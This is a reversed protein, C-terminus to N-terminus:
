EYSEMLDDQSLQQSAVACRRPRGSRRREDQESAIDMAKRPSRRAHSTHGSPTSSPTLSGGNKRGLSSSTTKSAQIPHRPVERVDKLWEEPEDGLVEYRRGKHRYTKITDPENSAQHSDFGANGNIELEKPVTTLKEQTTVSQETSLMIAPPPQKLKAPPSSLITEVVDKTQSAGPTSNEDQMSDRRKSSEFNPYQPLDHDYGLMRKALAADQVAIGDFANFYPRKLTVTRGGHASGVLASMTRLPPEQPMSIRLATDGDQGRRWSPRRMPTGPLPQTWEQSCTHQSNM